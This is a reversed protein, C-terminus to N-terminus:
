YNEYKYTRALSHRLLIPQGATPIAPALSYAPSAPLDANGGIGLRSDSAALGSAASEMSGLFAELYLAHLGYRM